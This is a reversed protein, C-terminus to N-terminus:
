KKFNKIRVVKEDFDLIWKANEFFNVGLIGIIEENTEKKLLEITGELDALQFIQKEFVDKGIKINSEVLYNTSSEKMTAGIYNLTGVIKLKSFEDYKEITKACLVNNNAGTDLLFYRDKGLIKVSIIPLGSKEYCDPHFRIKSYKWEKRIIDRFKLVAYVIATLIIIGFIAITLVNQVIESM